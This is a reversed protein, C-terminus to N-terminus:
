LYLLLLFISSSSLIVCAIEVLCYVHMRLLVLPKQNGELLPNSELLKNKINAVEENYGSSKSVAAIYQMLVKSAETKGAGSEGSNFNLLLPTFLYGNFQFLFCSIVQYYCM